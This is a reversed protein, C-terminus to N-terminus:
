AMIQLPTAKFPFPQNTRLLPWTFLILYVGGGGGDKIVYLLIRNDSVLVKYQCQQVEVMQCQECKVKKM